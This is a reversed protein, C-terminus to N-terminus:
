KVHEVIVQTTTKSYCLRCGFCKQGTCNAATTTDDTPINNFVKDFGRPPETMLKDTSPNSYIHILNPPPTVGTRIALWVTAKRKTWLSFTVAPNARAITYLNELHTQNILEGHGHFRAIPTKVPNLRPIQWGELPAQSLTDSNRQFAPVASERYTNLMYVSYCERCISEKATTSSMIKCFENTLTNTNIAPLGALKGSMKSVHVAHQHQPPATTAINYLSHM